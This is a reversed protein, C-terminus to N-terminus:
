PTTCAAAPLTPLKALMMPSVIPPSKYLRRPPIVNRILILAPTINVTKIM